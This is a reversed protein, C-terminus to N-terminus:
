LLAGYFTTVFNVAAVTTTTASPSFCYCEYYDTGNAQDITDVQTYASNSTSQAGNQVICAGNKFLMVQPFVNNRVGASFFLGAGLHVIGAAPTWRSNTADYKNNVDFVKRTFKMKTNTSDPIGTQNTALKARFADKTAPSTGAPGTIGTPGTLGVPGTFGTPGIQGVQGTPGINGTPGTAGLGTPGIGFPGTNGTPGTLGLPGTPGTRGIPGTYGTPGDVGNYGDVGRPGTAGVGPGTPGTAGTTSAFGAPGTAGLGTPGTAGTSGL